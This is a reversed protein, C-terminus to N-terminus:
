KDNAIGWQKNIKYKNAVYIELAKEYNQLNGIDIWIGEFSFAGIREGDQSLERLLDPLDKKRERDFHAVVGPKFISIGGYVDFSLKPKEVVNIVQGDNIKLVGYPYREERKISLVTAYNQQNRHYNMLEEFNLDTLIDCNMVLFDEDMNKLLSIPGATGLPRDEKSYSISVDFKRGDEFYEEIQEHHHNTAFTIDNFGYYCLQHVIIELIPTDGVRVLGKPIGETLPYLRTGKGGAIVVAKM